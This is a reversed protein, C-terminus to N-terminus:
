NERVAQQGKDNRPRSQAPKRESDVEEYFAYDRRKPEGFRMRRRILDVRDLQPTGKLRYVAVVVVVVVVVEVVVVVVVGVVVGVVVIVVVVVVVVVVLLFM